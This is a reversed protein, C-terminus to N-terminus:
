LMKRFTLYSSFLSKCIKYKEALFPMFASSMAGEVFFERFLNPIALAVFFVDTVATAGFVIGIAVDRILGFVRSILVGAGSRIFNFIFNTM